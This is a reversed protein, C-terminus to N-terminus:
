LARWSSADGGLWTVMLQFAGASGGFGLSWTMAIPMLAYSSSSRGPRRGNASGSWHTARIWGVFNGDLVNVAARGICIVRPVYPVSQEGPIDTKVSLKPHYGSWGRDNSIRRQHGLEFAPVRDHHQCSCLRWVRQCPTSAIFATATRWDHCFPRMLMAARHQLCPTIAYHCGM